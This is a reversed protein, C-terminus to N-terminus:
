SASLLLRSRSLSCGQAFAQQDASLTFPREFISDFIKICLPGGGDLTIRWKPFLIPSFIRRVEASKWARENMAGSPRRAPCLLWASPRQSRPASISKSRSKDRLTDSAGRARDLHCAMKPFYKGSFERKSDVVWHLGGCDGELDYQGGQTPAKNM